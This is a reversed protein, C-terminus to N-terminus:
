HRHSDDNATYTQHQGLVEPVLQIQSHKESVDQLAYRLLMTKLHRMDTFSVSTRYHLLIVRYVNLNCYKHSMDFANLFPMPVLGSSTQIVTNGPSKTKIGSILGSFPIQAKIQHARLENM